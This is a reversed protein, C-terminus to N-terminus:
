NHMGCDRGNVDFREWKTRFKAANKAIWAMAVENFFPSDVPCVMEVERLMERVETDMYEQFDKAM